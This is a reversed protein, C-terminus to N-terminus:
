KKTSHTDVYAHAAIYVATLFISGIACVTAFQEHKQIIQTIATWLAANGGIMTLAKKSGLMEVITSGISFMAGPQSTLEVTPPKSANVANVASAVAQRLFEKDPDELM